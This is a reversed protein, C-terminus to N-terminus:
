LWRKRRAIWLVVAAGVIALAVSWHLGLFPTAAAGAGAIAKGVGDEAGEPRPPPPAEVERTRVTGLARWTQAGAIGDARLGNAEQFNILARYTAPGFVGDAGTEYGHTTLLDQLRAVAGGQDGEQLVVWAPAKSHKRYAAALKGDYDNAAYGAGNYRRAVGAWDHARLPSVIDTRQLWRAMAEIQQREGRKFSHVMEAASRYGALEANFGMLQPLGWSASRLAADQDLIIADALLAYPNRWGMKVGRRWDRVSVHPHSDDHAHGTQASFVHPEFRMRIRNKSDFGRGSTEVEILAKLAAPEVDIGAAISALEEDTVPARDTHGQFHTPTQIGGTAPPLDSPPAVPPLPPAPPPPADVVFTAAPEITKSM